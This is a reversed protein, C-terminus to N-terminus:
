THNFLESMPSTVHLTPSIWSKLLFIRLVSVVKCAKSIRVHPKNDGVYQLQIDTLDYIGQAHSILKSTPSLQRVLLSLKDVQVNPKRVAVYYMKDVAYSEGDRQLITM